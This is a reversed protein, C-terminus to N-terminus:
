RSRRGALWDNLAKLGAYGAYAAGVAAWVVLHARGGM